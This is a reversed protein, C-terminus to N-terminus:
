EIGHTKFVDIVGQAKDKRAAALPTDGDEDETEISSPQALLERKFADADRRQLLGFFGFNENETPNM